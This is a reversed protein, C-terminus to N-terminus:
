DWMGVSELRLAKQSCRPCKFPKGSDSYRLDKLTTSCKGCARDLATATAELLEALHEPGPNGTRLYKALARIDDPRTFRPETTLTECKACYSLANSVFSFVLSRGFHLCLPEAKLGCSSCEVCAMLGM